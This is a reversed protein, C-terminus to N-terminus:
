GTSGCAAASAFTPPEGYTACSFGLRDRYYAISRGIDAVLLVPSVGTVSAM